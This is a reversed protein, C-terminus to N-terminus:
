SETFREPISLHILLIHSLFFPLIITGSLIDSNLSFRVKVMFHISEGSVIM